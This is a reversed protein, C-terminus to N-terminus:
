FWGKFGPVRTEDEMQEVNEELVELGWLGELWRGTWRRGRHHRGGGGLALLTGVRIWRSPTSASTDSPSSTTPPPATTPHHCPPHLIICFPSFFPHHLRFEIQFCILVNSQQHAGLMKLKGYVDSSSGFKWFLSINQIKDSTKKRKPTALPNCHDVPKPTTETATVTKQIHKSNESGVM